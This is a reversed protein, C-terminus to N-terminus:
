AGRQCTGIAADIRTLWFDGYREAYWDRIRAAVRLFGDRQAPTLEHVTGGAAAFRAFAAAEREKPLARTVTKLGAFGTAVIPQFEAPMEAWRRDSYWWMAGMYAHRDLVIFKVHEELKMATLDQVSNMTGEVVGTALALYIESWPIPTAAGGMARVLEQHLPSAITRIKLGRLDDVSQVPRRTTAFNRWGGTNGVAMLRMGLGRELVAASFADMLPSDLVCEAQQDDAYLYPLDFAQAEPFIASMGGFTTMFVDLVGSQLGEICERESGCFQGSAYIEVAVRGGTAGEVHTKLATAGAYDEDDPSALIAVRITLEPRDATSRIIGYVCGLIVLAFVILLPLRAMM